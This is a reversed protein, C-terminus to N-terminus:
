RDWWLPHSREEHEIHTKLAIVNEDIWDVTSKTAVRAFIVPMDESFQVVFLHILQSLIRHAWLPM